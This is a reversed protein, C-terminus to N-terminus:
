TTLRAAATCRPLKWWLGGSEGPVEKYSLFYHRLRDLLTPPCQYIDSWDGYAPDDKLVAIIKDDAQGRDIMRLGGIPIARLLIDGHSVPRESLVCVDMPDGDGVINPRGTRARSAQAVREGCLTQPLLGYLTPCM